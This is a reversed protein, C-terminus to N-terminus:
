EQIAVLDHLAERVVAEDSFRLLVGQVEQFQEHGKGAVMIVDQAQASFIARRIAKRRDLEVAWPSGGEFGECLDLAIRLPDENRPNDSTLIVRDANSKAVAGMLSRKGVDRGGGAGLVCWLMGSRRCAVLRLTSLVRSLADPTHAYDIFVLCKHPEEIRQLRGRVGPLNLLCDLIQPFSVSMIKWIAASVLANQLNHVGVVPIRMFANQGAGMVLTGPIDEEVSFTSQKSVSADFLQSPKQNIFVTQEICDPSIAESFVSADSLASFSVDPCSLVRVVMIRVDSASIVRLFHIASADDGNVVFHKIGKYSFLRQKAELYAQDNVHYDLHDRSFNTFVATEINLGHLRGLDLGISSAELVVTEVGSRLFDRLIRHLVVPEPTTLDLSEMWSANGECFVGYGLTGIVGCSSGKRSLGFATWHACTTKGNTGTIAIVHLSASPNGYFVSAIPGIRKRLDFVGLAPPFHESRLHELFQPQMESLEYLVASCGYASSFFSRGDCKQRSLAVFVDGPELKRSDVCLKVDTFVRTKELLWTAIDADNKSSFDQVVTNNEIKSVFLQHQEEGAETSDDFCNELFSERIEASGEGDFHSSSEVNEPSPSGTAKIKSESEVPLVSSVANDCQSKVNFNADGADLHVGQVADGVTIQSISLSEEETASVLVSFPSSVESHQGENSSDQLFEEVEIKSDIM